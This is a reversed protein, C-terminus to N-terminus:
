QNSVNKEEMLKLDKEWFLWRPDHDDELLSVVPKGNYKEERTVTFIKGAASSVFNRYKPNQREWEPRAMIEETKIIVKEGGVFDTKDTVEEAANVVEEILCVSDYDLKLRKALKRKQARNM